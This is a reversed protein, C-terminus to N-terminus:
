SLVLSLVRPTFANGDWLEKIIKIHNKPTSITRLKRHTFFVAVYLNRRTIRKERNHDFAHKKGEKGVEKERNGKGKKEKASM